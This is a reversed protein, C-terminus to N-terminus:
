FKGLGRNGLSLMEKKLINPDLIHLIPIKNIQQNNKNQLIGTCSSIEQPSSKLRFLDNMNRAEKTCM